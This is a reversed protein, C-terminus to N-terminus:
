QQIDIPINNEEDDLNKTYNNTIGNSLSIYREPGFVSLDGEVDPGESTGLKFDNKQVNPVFDHIPIFEFGSVNIIFPLEKVSKDSKGDTNNIAIEWPSETPVGYSIGKMIGVQNYLYGGVTLEILNGRM